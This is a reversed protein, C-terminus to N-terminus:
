KHSGSERHSRAPQRTMAHQSLLRKLNQAFLLSVSNVWELRARVSLSAASQPERGLRCSGYEIQIARENLPLVTPESGILRPEFGQPAVLVTEPVSDDALLMYLCHTVPTGFGGKEWTLGLPFMRNQITKRTSLDSSQWAISTNWLSHRLYEIFSELDLEDSTSIELRSAAEAIRSLLDANKDRYDEASVIGDTLAELLNAKKMNLRAIEQRLLTSDANSLQVRRQWVTRFVREILAMREIKPTLRNLLDIFAGEVIEARVNMHGTARHCRYYSFRKGSKGKSKSGTVPMKCESCLILGRLPFDAHERLHTVKTPARGALIAQTQEFTAETVLPEFDGRIPGIDWRPIFIEGKYVPNTLLKRITEQTLPKGKVSRLGLSTVTSLAEAKSQRGSAVLEFLTSILSARKPDPLLSPQSKSSGNVYGTPAKWQWRGSALRYKMGALTREARVENDFQGTAGLIRAVLRGAPTNDIKETASRLDIHLDKLRLRYMGGVDADRSFRDFKYVVVSSVTGRPCTSLFEFMAQFEPRRDSKASEGREIFVHLVELGNIGCWDRCASEQSDLSANEVQRMDSVRVYIVAKRKM